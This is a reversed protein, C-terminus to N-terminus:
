EGGGGWIIEHHPASLIFFLDHTAHMIHNKDSITTFLAKLLRTRQKKFYSCKKTLPVVNWIMRAVTFPRM